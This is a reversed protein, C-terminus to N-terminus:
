QLTRRFLSGEHAVLGRCIIWFAAAQRKKLSGLLAVGKNM